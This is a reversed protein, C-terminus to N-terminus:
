ARKWPDEPVGSSPVPPLCERGFVQQWCEECTHPLDNARTFPLRDIVKCEVSELGMVTVIKLRARRRLTQVQMGVRLKPIIGMTPSPPYTDEGQRSVM